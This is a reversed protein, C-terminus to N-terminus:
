HCHYFSFQKRISPWERKWWATVKRVHYVFTVGLDVQSRRILIERLVGLWYAGFHACFFVCEGEEECSLQCIFLEMTLCKVESAIFCVKFIRNSSVVWPNVFNM